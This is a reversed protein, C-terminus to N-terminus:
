QARQPAEIYNRAWVAIGADLLELLAEEHVRAATKDNAARCTRALIHRALAMETARRLLTAYELAETARRAAQENLGQDAEMQAVKILTYALRHKADVIRLEQLGEELADATGGSAYQCFGAIARSYPGESGERLKEGLELLQRARTAAHERDARELDIMMLHEIARFEAVRDGALKYLTRAEELLNEAEDLRNEHLHLLGLGAPLAPHNVRHRKALANAEMLMADAQAMDRELTVLCYATDALGAINDEVRGSRAVRESQLSQERAASWEGQWWRVTAAMHYALRAHALEGREVAHEALSAYLKASAEPDDLPAASLLVNHLDISACVREADPMNEVLQLGKHALSMAEDNAFFRLCLKGASAMARAALGADGSQTAHHALDAALRQDLVASKELLEAVRRHMVQRRIPSVQNYVARAVLDHSFRLESGTLMLVAQAEAHELAAAVEDAGLTSLEVLDDMRIRPSLVAAWKLVEVGDLDFRALRERVVEALSAASDGAAEARALEIALLPNGASERALREADVGPANNRILQEVAKTSLPGLRVDDLLGDRRLGRLSLQVSVSDLLEATRGSFVSFLRAASNARILYHMAAASSEDCWHVDDFVLAVPREALQEQLAENLGEFLRERNDFREDAFVTPAAEPLGSKLADIWLGFPRLSESEYASASLVLAGNQRLLEIIVQLLGSKGIGPEGAILLSRAGGAECVRAFTEMTAAVEKDRGIVERPTAYVAPERAAPPRPAVPKPPTETMSEGRWASFLEGTSMAGIEKLMRMGLRYQQEAEDTHRLGMLLRVLNSRASEDYPEISVLRRLLPLARRPEGALRHVLERLIAAQAELVKEREAVCWAHFDHFNSLELGELFNGQLREAAAELMETSAEPMSSDVLKYLELVDIDVDGVVFEVSSRDAVIRPADDGDVARRLKSLSWRLSGRPDDPIDWLLECLFERRFRRPNLSLYALLGRTKKSPPLKAPEGNRLVEFDGLYKLALTSM